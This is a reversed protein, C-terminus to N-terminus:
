TSREIKAKFLPHIERMFAISISVWAFAIYVAGMFVFGGFQTSYWHYDVAMEQDFAILSMVLAYVIVVAPSLRWM